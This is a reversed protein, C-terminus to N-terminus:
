FANGVSFHLQLRHLLGTGRRPRYAADALVLNRTGPDIVFLRGVQRLYGNFAVDLRMPGLPTLLRLGAGPTVKLGAGVLGQPGEEWLEGADVFVSFGLRGPLVPSPMRLEINGLVIANSGLPSSRLNVPNGAADLSDAVYVVPGMENRPFGRVTAPGGAYFREEQPVFRISSDALVTTVARVAGARLRAAVVWGRAPSRYWSSELDVKNFGVQSWVATSAHSLTLATVRGSSPDVPSNTRADVAQLVLAAERRYDTLQDITSADCRDFYICFTAPQAVTRARTVRWTLSIPVRGARFGISAAGGVGTREFANFETRRETFASLSASFTRSVLSPQTLTVSAFHNVRDAFLDNRVQSCISNELGLRTPDSSGVRSVRAVIDLRRAGGTFNPRTFSASGRICDITGYGTGVRARIRPAEALRVRVRVLTDSGRVLSDPHLGVSAYRFLDSQYLSLQSEVLERQRFVSGETFALNRRVTRSTVSQAGEIVIEGIRVLEGPLVEYSVRARRENRDVSYNRFVQAFAYGQDRLAFLVTDASAEFALRNFPAGARLPLRRLLRRVDLLTDLGVVSVSDVLVPPGEEIRFTVSVNGGDRRVVTDVRAEYFGHQRYLLQIRVVDRRFETEDFERREGFGLDGVLFAHRSWASSTTAISAALVIDEIARNGDFRVGTVMPRHEEEPVQALVPGASLAAMLLAVDATRRVTSSEYVKRM